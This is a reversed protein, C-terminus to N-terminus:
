EGRHPPKNYNSYPRDGSLRTQFHKKFPKNIFPKKNEPPPRIKKPPILLDLMEDMSHAVEYESGDKLSILCHTDSLPLFKSFGYAEVFLKKGDMLKFELIIM